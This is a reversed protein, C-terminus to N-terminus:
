GQDLVAAEGHPMQMGSRCHHYRKGNEIKETKEVRDGFALRGTIVNIFAANLIPAEKGKELEFAIWYSGNPSVNFHVHAGTNNVVRVSDSDALTGDTTKLLDAYAGVRGHGGIVTKLDLGRKRTMELFARQRPMARAGLSDVGPGTWVDTQFALKADPIYGALMGDSHDTPLDYLEVRRKGDTIVHSDKVEIIDAKLKKKPTDVGLADSSALIKRWFKRAGKGVVLTAGEVVFSRFGAVHDIHPHTLVLYRIPKNPFRQKAQDIAWKSYADMYPADFVVLYSDMEVFLTHHITGQVQSIGSARDVLQLQVRKPDHTLNDVDYYSGILQRRLIWLYPVNGTAIKPASTRIAEPVAFADATVAPNAAAEDVTFEMLKQRDIEYRQRFPYKIGGVTRWDSLIWDYTTDGRLPDFDM